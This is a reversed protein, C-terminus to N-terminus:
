KDLEEIVDWVAQARNYNYEPGVTSYNNLPAHRAFQVKLEDLEDILKKVAEPYEWVNNRSIIEKALEVDGRHAADYIEDFDAHVYENPQMGRDFSRKVSDGRRVRDHPINKKAHRFFNEIRDKGSNEFWYSVFDHPDDRTVDFMVLSDRDSRCNLELGMNGFQKSYDNGTMASEQFDIWDQLSMKCCLHGDEDDEYPMCLIVENGDQYACIGEGWTKVSTNMM